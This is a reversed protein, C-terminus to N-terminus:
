APYAPKQGPAARAFRVGGQALLYGDPHEQKLRTVTATLGAQDVLVAQDDVGDDQAGALPEEGRWQGDLGHAGGGEAASDDGM